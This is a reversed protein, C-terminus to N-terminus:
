FIRRKQFRKALHVSVHYSADIPPEKYLTSMENRDMLLYPRWLYVLWFCSDGTAAMNTLQIPVFHTSKISSQGYISGVLNWIMQGLPKLPSSNKLDALWFCSDGTTAMNILTVIYNPWRFSWLYAFFISAFHPLPFPCINVKFYSLPPPM